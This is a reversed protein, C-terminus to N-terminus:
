AQLLAVAARVQALCSEASVRVTDRAVRAGATWRLLRGDEFRYLLHLGSGTPEAPAFPDRPVAAPGRAGADPGPRRALSRWELEFGFSAAPSLRALEHVADRLSLGVRGGPVPPDDPDFRPARARLLRFAAALRARGAAIRGRELLLRGRLVELAIPELGGRNPDAAIWRAADGAAAEAGSLRGLSELLRARRLALPIAIEPAHTSDAHVLGHECAVLAPAPEGARQLGWAWQDYVTALGVRRYEAPVTASLHACQRAGDAPDGAAFTVQARLCDADFAYRTAGAPEVRAPFERLLPPLRRLAHEVGEWCDLDALFRAYELALRVRTSGGGFAECLESAELLRDAAHALRGDDVDRRAAFLLLRATQDPFHHRVAIAIGEDLRVRVSDREGQRDHLFALEGLIQCVLYDEGPVRERALADEFRARAPGLRDLQVEAEAAAFQAAASMDADGAAALADRARDLQALREAPPLTSSESAVVYAHVLQYRAYDLRAPLAVRTRAYRAPAPYDYEGALADALRLMLRELPVRDRAFRAYPEAQLRRYLASWGDMLPRPGAARAYARFRAPPDEVLHRALTADLTPVSALLVRLRARPVLWAAATALLAAALVGALLTRPRVM